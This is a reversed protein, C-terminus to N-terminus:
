LRAAILYLPAWIQPESPIYHQISDTSIAKRVIGRVARPLPVAAQCPRQL